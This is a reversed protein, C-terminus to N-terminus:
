KRNGSVLAWHTVAPIGLTARLLCRDIIDFTASSMCCTGVVGLHQWTAETESLMAMPMCILAAFCVVITSRKGLVLKQGPISYAKTFCTYASPKQNQQTSAHIHRELPPYASLVDTPMIKQWPNVARQWPNPARLMSGSIKLPETAQPVMGHNGAVSNRSQQRHLLKADAHSLLPSRPHWPITWWPSRGEEVGFPDTQSTTSCEPQCMCQDVGPENSSTEKLHINISDSIRTCTCSLDHSTWSTEKKLKKKMSRWGKSISVHM